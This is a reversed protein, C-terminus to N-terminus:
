DSRARDVIERMGILLAYEQEETLPPRIVDFEEAGPIQLTIWEYGALNYSTKVRVREEDIMLLVLSFVWLDLLEYEDSLFQNVLPIFERPIDFERRPHERSRGGQAPMSSM